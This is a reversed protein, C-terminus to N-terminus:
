FALSFALGSATKMFLNSWKWWSLSSGPHAISGYTFLLSLPIGIIVSAVLLRRFGGRLEAARGIFNNRGFYAGVMFIGAVMFWFIGSLMRNPIRDVRYRVTDAYSGATFIETAAAIEAEHEAQKAPDEGAKLQEFTRQGS